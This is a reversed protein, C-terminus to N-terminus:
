TSKLIRKKYESPTCGLERHFIETYYSSSNFGCHMAIETISLTTNTLYEISKEIRYNTVYQIPTIGLISQFIDCCNSRCVCGALAIKELTLKTAYSSQIYGIMSHLSELKKNIICEENSATTLLNQYLTYWLSYLHSLVILEFGSNHTQCLEFIKHLEIIIESQWKVSHSFLYYPINPNKSISTVYSDKIQEIAKFLSPHFLLCLIQCDSGDIAHSSHIQRSNVFICQGKELFQEKGNVSYLMKGQLVVVFEIDSHWHSIATMNPYNSLWNKKALVLFDRFNYTVIESSDSALKIEVM